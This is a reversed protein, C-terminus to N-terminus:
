ADVVQDQEGPSGNVDKHQEAATPEDSASCQTRHYYFQLVTEIFNFYSSSVVVFIFLQANM